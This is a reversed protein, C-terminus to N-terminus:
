RLRRALRRARRRARPCGASRRAARLRSRRKGRLWVRCDDYQRGLRLALWKRCCHRAVLPSSRSMSEARHAPLQRREIPRRANSAALSRYVVVCAPAGNSHRWMFLPFFEGGEVQRGVQRGEHRAAGRHHRRRRRILNSGRISEIATSNFKSRCSPARARM